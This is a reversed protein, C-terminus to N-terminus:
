GDDITLLVFVMLCSIGFTHASESNPTLHSDERIILSHPHLSLNFPISDSVAVDWRLSEGLLCRSLLSRAPM